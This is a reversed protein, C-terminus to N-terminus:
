KAEPPTFNRGPLGIEPEIVSRRVASGVSTRGLGISVSATRAVSSNSFPLTLANWNWASVSRIVSPESSVIVATSKLSSVPALPLSSSTENTETPASTRIPSMTIPPSARLKANRPLPSKLVFGPKPTNRLMPAASPSVNLHGLHSGIWILSTPIWHGSMWASGVLKVSVSDAVTLSIVPTGPRFNEPEISPMLISMPLSSSPSNGITSMAAIPTETSPLMNPPSSLAVSIPPM